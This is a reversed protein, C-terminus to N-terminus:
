PLLSYLRVLLRPTDYLVSYPSINLMWLLSPSNSYFVFLISPSYFLISPSYFLISPSYFLISYISSKFYGDNRLIKILRVRAGIDEDFGRQDLLKKFEDETLEGKLDDFDSM